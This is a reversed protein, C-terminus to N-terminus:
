DSKKVAVQANIIGANASDLSAKAQDVKTQFPAPDIMAVLQNKKVPTNFDADMKVVIGSVQSGVSVSIEASATGTASIASEITGRSVKAKLFTVKKSNNYYTFGGLALAAIVLTLGLLWKLKKM